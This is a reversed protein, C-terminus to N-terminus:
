NDRRSFNQLFLLASTIKVASTSLLVSSQRPTVQFVSFQRFCAIHLLFLDCLCSCHIISNKNRVGNVVPCLDDLSCM